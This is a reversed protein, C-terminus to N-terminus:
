IHVEQQQKQKIAVERGLLPDVNPNTNESVGQSNLDTGKQQAIDRTKRVNERQEETLITNEGVVKRYALDQRRDEGQFSVSVDIDSYRENGEFGLSVDVNSYRENDLSVTEQQRIVDYKSQTPAPRARPTFINQMKEMFKAKYEKIKGNFSAPKQVLTDKTDRSWEEPIAGKTDTKIGFCGPTGGQNGAQNQTHGAKALTGRVAAKDVTQGSREQLATTVAEVSTNFLKLGNRDKGSQCASVEEPVANFRGNHADDRMEHRIIALDSTITLNRNSGDWLSRFGTNSRLTEKADLAAAFMRKNSGTCHELEERAEGINTSRGSIYNAIATNKNETAYAATENLLATVGDTKNAGWFRRFFNFALNTHTGEGAETGAGTQQVIAGDNGTPNNPSNLTVMHIPKGIANRLQAVNQNALRQQEEQGGKAQSAVTGSHHGEHVIQLEQGAEAVATTKTYANRIGPISRLQTPITHADDTLEDTYRDILSQAFAPQETYWAKNHRETFEQKQEDTMSTLMTEAECVTYRKGAHEVSSLTVSHVHEDEFGAFDKALNLQKSAQQHNVGLGEALHDVLQSNRREFLEKPNEATSLQKFTERSYNHISQLTEQQQEQTIEERKVAEELLIAASRAYNLTMIQYAEPGDADIPSTQERADRVLVNGAKQWVIGSKADRLEHVMRITATYDLNSAELQKNIDTYLEHPRESLQNINTPAAAVENAFAMVNHQGPAGSIVVTDRLDYEPFAPM